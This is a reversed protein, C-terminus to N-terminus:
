CRRSRYAQIKATRNTSLFEGIWWDDLQLPKKVLAPQHRYNAETWVRM